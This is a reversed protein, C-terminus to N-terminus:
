RHVPRRARPERKAGCFKRGEVISEIKSIDTSFVSILFSINKPMFTRLRYKDRSIFQRNSTSSKTSKFSHVFQYQFFQKGYFNWAKICICEHLDRKFKM